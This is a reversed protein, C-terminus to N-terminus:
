KEELKTVVVINLNRQSERFRDTNCLKVGATHQIMMYDQSLEELWRGLQGELHKFRFLWPCSPIILSDTLEPTTVHTIHTPNSLEVM